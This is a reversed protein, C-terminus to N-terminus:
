AEVGRELDRLCTVLWGSKAVSGELGIDLFDQDGLQASAIDDDHVIEGAVLARPDAFADFGGAGLKEEQRGVAGIEVRDLHGEGLEFREQAFGGLSGDFSQPGGDTADEFGREALM